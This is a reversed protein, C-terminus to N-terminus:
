NMYPVKGYVPLVATRGGRFARLKCTWCCAHRFLETAEKTGGPEAAERGDIIRHDYSQLWTCRDSSHRDPRKVVATRQHMSASSPAFRPPNIIPTSLMSGFVGGNSISFTGGTLGELSLKGDQGQRQVRRDKVARDASAVHPRRRTIPVVLGRPSGVAIGIDFYGHYM